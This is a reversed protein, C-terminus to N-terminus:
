PPLNAQDSKGPWHLSFRAGGLSSSDVHIHGGHWQLIRRAIALGLGYGGRSSSHGDDLRVFPEFIREHEAIPVGSGDDDVHIVCADNTIDAAVNVQARAHRSANRLINGLARRMLTDDFFATATTPVNCHFTIEPMPLRTDDMTQQLWAALAHAQIDLAPTDRDFRAYDLLEAILTDLEAIDREMDNLYRLRHTDHTAVQSMEMGFRLRTIPTRLEHAVARTLEKHSGILREIREAMANFRHALLTLASTNPVAARASLTGQGFSEAVRELEEMSRWLPRVWFWVALAIGSVVFMFVVLQVVLYVWPTGIPGLTVAFRTEGIRQHFVDGDNIVIIEGDKLRTREDDDLVITTLPTISLPYGFQTNLNAIHQPWADMPLQQLERILLHFTGKALRRYDNDLEQQSVAWTVMSGITIAVVVIAVILLYLRLFLKGM